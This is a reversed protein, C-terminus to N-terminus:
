HGRLQFVQLAQEIPQDGCNATDGLSECGLALKARRAEVREHEAVIAQRRFSADIDVRVHIEVADEVHELLIEGGRERDEAVVVKM